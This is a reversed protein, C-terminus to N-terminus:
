TGEFDLCVQSGLLWPIETVIVSFIFPFWGYMKAGRERSEYLTRVEIVRPQIINFLGPAVFMAQFTALLRNQVSRYNNDHVAVGFTIGTILGTGIVLGVRSLVYDPTRIISSWARRTVMQTQMKLSSAYYLGDEEFSAPKNQAEKIVNNVEATIEKYEESELWVQAWDHGKSRAGSVIDIMAEAANEEAGIKAGKSAFYAKMTSANKGLEGNYVTRGGKALLLLSDFQEFLLASPQHVTVLMSQGAASLKKLFRLIQYASQGDLGSTPEDLFLLKPKAVLEVGITTRKRQEISLGAGPIGIIADALEDLELIAIVKNVYDEIDEDSTERPQRLRASFM